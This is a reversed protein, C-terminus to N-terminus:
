PMIGAFVVAHANTVVSVYTWGTYKEEISSESIWILTIGGDGDKFVKACYWCVSKRNEM